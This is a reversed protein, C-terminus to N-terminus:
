PRELAQDRDRGARRARVILAPLSRDVDGEGTPEGENLDLETHVSAAQIGFLDIATFFVPAETQLLRHIADYQGADLFALTRGGQFRLWDTPPAPVFELSATGGQALVLGITRSAPSLDSRGVRASYKEIREAIPM